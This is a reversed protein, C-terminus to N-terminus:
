ALKSSGESESISMPAFFLAHAPTYNSSLLARVGVFTGFSHCSLVKFTGTISITAGNRLDQWEKNQSLANLIEDVVFHSQLPEFYGASDYTGIYHPQIVEYGLEVLFQTIGPIPIPLNPLGPLHIAIGKSKSDQNLSYNCMVGNLNVRTSYM